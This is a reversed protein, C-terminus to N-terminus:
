TSAVCIEIRNKNRCSCKIPPKLSRSPIKGDVKESLVSFLSDSTDNFIGSMLTGDDFKILALNDGM